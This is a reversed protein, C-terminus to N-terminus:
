KIMRLIEKLISYTKSLNEVRGGYRSEEYLKLFRYLELKVNEPAKKALEEVVERPTMFELNVNVKLKGAIAQLTEKVISTTHRTHTFAKTFIVVVIITSLMALLPVSYEQLGRHLINIANSENVEISENGRMIPKESRTRNEILSRRYEKLAEEITENVYRRIHEDVSQFVTVSPRAISAPPTPDVEVWGTGPIYLEVWLHPIGGIRQTGNNYDVVYGLVVRSKVGMNRLIVALTSTYHLCSGKRSEFLFYDVLDKGIPTKPPTPTYTRNARIYNILYDILEKLTKNWYRALLELALKRIRWTSENYPKGIVIEKLKINSLLKSPITSYPYPKTYELTNNELIAVQYTNNYMYLTRLAIFRDYKDKLAKPAIVKIVDDIKSYVVPQPIPIVKYSPKVTPLYDLDKIHFTVLTSTTNSDKITKAPILQKEIEEEDSLKWIGNSYVDLATLRVYSIRTGSVNGISLNVLIGEGVVMRTINIRELYKQYVVIVPGHPKYIVPLPVTLVIM